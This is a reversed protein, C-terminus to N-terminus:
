IKVSFIAVESKPIGNYNYDKYLKNLEIAIRSTFLLSKNTDRISIVNEFTYDKESHTKIYVIM